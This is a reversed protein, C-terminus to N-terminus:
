ETGWEKKMEWYASAKKERIKETKLRERYIDNSRNVTDQCLVRM